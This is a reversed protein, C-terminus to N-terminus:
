DRPRNLLIARGAAQLAEVLARSEAPSLSLALANGEGDDMRLITYSSALDSADITIERRHPVVIKHIVAVKSGNM